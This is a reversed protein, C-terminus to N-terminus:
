KCAIRKALANRSSRLGDRRSIQAELTARYRDLSARILDASIEGLGDPHQRLFLTTREVDKRATEVDDGAEVIRRDYDDILACAGAHAEVGQRALVRNERALREIKDLTETQKSLVIAVPALSVLSIVLAILGVVSVVPLNHFRQKVQKIRPMM